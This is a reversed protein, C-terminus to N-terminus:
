YHFHCRQYQLLVSLDRHHLSDSKYYISPMIHILATQCIKSHWKIILTFRNPYVWIISHGLKSLYPHTAMYKMLTSLHAINKGLCFVNECSVFILYIKKPCSFHHCSNLFILLLLLVCVRYCVFFVCFELHKNEQSFFHNEYDKLLLLAYMTKLWVYFVLSFRPLQFHSIYVTIMKAM